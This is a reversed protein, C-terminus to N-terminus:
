SLGSDTPRLLGVTLSHGAKTEYVFRGIVDGATEAEPIESSVYAPIFLEVQSDGIFVDGVEDKRLRSSSLPAIRTPSDLRFRFAGSEGGAVLLLCFSEEEWFLSLVFEPFEEDLFADYVLWSRPGFFASDTDVAFAVLSRDEYLKQSIEPSHLGPSAPLVTRMLPLFQTSTEGEGWELEVLSLVVEDGEDNFVVSDITHISRPETRDPVRGTRLFYQGPVRGIMASWLEPRWFEVGAPMRFVPYGYESVERIV